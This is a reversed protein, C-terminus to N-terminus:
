EHPQEKRRNLIRRAGDTVVFLGMGGLLTPIFIRYFLNVYYVLPSHQPSPRYHSLWADPFNASAEPHCKRCTNLLNQKIVQSEPDDVKRMNHVGHCDICVPKNTPQDPAIKEFLVVTTGHFDSVYTDFVDTSVGYKAMLEKNAHCRACIQPSFLHFPSTSPGQVRHVGHCDICTPVDPNGEGILASGHVSQAYTKYIESHCRECTKPIRTRPQDPPAVNHAGHCDTCVAANQNGSTLAKQHVSDLAAEYKDQHCRACAPYMTLTVERRTSVALKPHPYGTINTHCQVCAYGAKGHVSANYIEPDVTLYLIEGSPLTIQQDPLGHCALCTENAIGAEPAVPAPSAESRALAKGVVLGVVVFLAIALGTILRKAKL